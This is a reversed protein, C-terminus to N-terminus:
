GIASHQEKRNVVCDNHFLFPESMRLVCLICQHMRMHVFWKSHKKDLKSEIQTTGLVHCLKERERIVLPCHVKLQFRRAFSYVVRLLHM